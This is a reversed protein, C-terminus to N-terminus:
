LFFKWSDKLLSVFDDNELWNANFKFPSRPKIDDNLVQLLVRQHNSDGGCGVWQRFHLNSDLLDISILLRDLRKCINECGVRRNSWTPLIISPVLDVLGFGDM